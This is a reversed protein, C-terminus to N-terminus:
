AKNERFTEVVFLIRIHLLINGLWYTMTPVAHAENTAMLHFEFRGGCINHDCICYDNFANKLFAM